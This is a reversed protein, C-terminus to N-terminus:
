RWFDTRVKWAGDVRTFRYTEARSQTVKGDKKASVLGIEARDSSERLSAAPAGLDRQLSKLDGFRDRVLAKVAQDGFDKKLGAIGAALDGDAYRQAGKLDLKRMAKAFALLAAAQQSLGVAPGTLLTAERVTRVRVKFTGTLAGPASKHSLEGSLQEGKLDLKRFAGRGAKGSRKAEGSLMAGEPFFFTLRSIEPKKEAYSVLVAAAGSTRAWRPVAFGDPVFEDALPVGSCDVSAFLIRIESEGSHPVFRTAGVSKLAHTRGGAVLKAKSTQAFAPAAACVLLIAAAQRFKGLM